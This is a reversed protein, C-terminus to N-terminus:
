RSTISKPGGQSAYERLLALAKCGMPCNFANDRRNHFTDHFYFLQGALREIFDRQAAVEAQLHAILAESLAISRTSVETGRPGRREETRVM